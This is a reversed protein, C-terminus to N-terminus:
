RLAERRLLALRQAVQARQRAGRGTEDVLVELLEIVIEEHEGLAVLGVLNCTRGRV